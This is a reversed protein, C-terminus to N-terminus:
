GGGASWPEVASTALDDAIANMYETSGVVMPPIDAYNAAIAYLLNRLGQKNLGSGAIVVERTESDGQIRDSKALPDTDWKHFGGDWYADATARHAASLDSRVLQAAIAQCDTRNYFIAFAV